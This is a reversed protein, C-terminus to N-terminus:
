TDERPHTFGSKSLWDRAHRALAQNGYTQTLLDPLGQPFHEVISNVGYGLPLDMGLGKNFPM